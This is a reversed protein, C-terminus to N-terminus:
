PPPLLTVGFTEALSQLSAPDPLVPEPPISRTTAARGAAEFFQEFGSPITMSIHRGIRSQVTYGHALGRPGYLWTGPQAEVQRGGLTVLYTGELIYFLEDERSHVHFPPGSGQPTTIETVGISLPVSAAPLKVVVLQDVFWYAKGDSPGLSAAQNLFDGTHLAIWRASKALDRAQAYPCRGRTRVRSLSVNVLIHYILEQRPRPPGRPAPEIM